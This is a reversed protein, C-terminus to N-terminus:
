LIAVLCRAYNCVLTIVRGEAGQGLAQGPQPGDRPGAAGWARAVPGDLRGGASCQVASCCGSGWGSAWRAVWRQSSAASRRPSSTPPPSRFRRPFPCICFVLIPINLQWKKRLRTHLAPCLANQDLLLRLYLWLHRTLMQPSHNFPNKDSGNPPSPGPRYRQRDKQRAGVKPCSAVVVRCCHSSSVFVHCRCCLLSVVVVRRHCSSSVVLFRRHCLSSVVIVCRPCLPSV